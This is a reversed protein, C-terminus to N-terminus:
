TDLSSLLQESTSNTRHIWAAMKLPFIRHQLAPTPYSSLLSTMDKAGALERKSGQHGAPVDRNPAARLCQLQETGVWAPNTGLASRSPSGLAAVAM